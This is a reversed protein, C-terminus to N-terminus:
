KVIRATRLYQNGPRKEVLGDLELDLLISCLQDITLGSQLFLKDFGLPVDSIFGLVKIHNKSFRTHSETTKVCTNNLSGGSFESFEELIDDISRTLKAGQQILELCGSATEALISGPVAFVERNQQLAFRATILSGSRRTAEVVLTGMSLGSIIRNRQPFHTKRPPSSLDFESILVGKAAIQQYLSKNSAPYCKDIGTGLVAVTNGSASIAGLHAHSDIGCAMGSTVTIGRESLQQALCEAIQKGALTAKRSGVVAIQRSDLLEANGKAYLVLPASSIQKLLFPYRRDAYHIIRNQKGSKMWEVSAELRKSDIRGSLPLGAQASDPSSQSGFLERTNRRLIKKVCGLRNLLSHKQPLTLCKLQSFAIWAHLDDM